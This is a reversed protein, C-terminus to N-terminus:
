RARAGRGAGAPKQTPRGAQSRRRQRGREAGGELERLAARAAAEDCVIASACGVRSVITLPLGKHTGSTLLLALGHPDQAVRQVDALSVGVFETIAKGPLKLPEADSTLMNLCVDTAPPTEFQWSLDRLLKSTWGDKEWAGCGFVAVNLGGYERRVGDWWGPFMKVKKRNRLVGFPKFTPAEVRAPGLLNAVRGQLEGVLADALLLRHDHFPELTLPVVHFRRDSGVLDPFPSSSTGITRV